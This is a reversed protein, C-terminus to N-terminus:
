AMIILKNNHQAAITLTKCQKGSMNDHQKIDARGMGRVCGESVRAGGEQVGVWM